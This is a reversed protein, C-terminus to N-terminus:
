AASARFARQLPVPGGTLHLIANDRGWFAATSRDTDPDRGRATMGDDHGACGGGTGDEERACAEEQAAATTDQLPTRRRRWRGRQCGRGRGRAGERGSREGAAALDLGAPSSSSSSATWARSGGQAVGEAEEEVGAPRAAAKAEEEALKALRWRPM